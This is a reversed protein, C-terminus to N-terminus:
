PVEATRRVVFTYRFSKTVNTSIKKFWAGSNPAVPTGPLGPGQINFFIETPYTAIPPNFIAIADNDLTSGAFPPTIPGVAFDQDSYFGGSAVVDRQTMLRVKTQYIGLDVKLGTTTDGSTGLGIGTGTWTRKVIAVTYLRLGLAAPIGRIVDLAPLLSDRFSASSGAM